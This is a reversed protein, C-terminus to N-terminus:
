VNVKSERWEKVVDAYKDVHGCENSWCDVHLSRSGDFSLGRWRKVARKAGCKPCKDSIQVKKKNEPFGEHQEIMPIEVTIYMYEGETLLATYCAQNSTLLTPAVGLM